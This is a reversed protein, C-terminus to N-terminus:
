WQVCWGSDLPHLGRLITHLEIALVIVGRDGVGRKWNRFVGACIRWATAQRRRVPNVQEYLCGTGRATERHSESTTLNEKSYQNLLIEIDGRDFSRHWKRCFVLKGLQRFEEPVNIRALNCHPPLEM